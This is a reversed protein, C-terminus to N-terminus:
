QYANMLPIKHTLDLFGHNVSININNGGNKNGSKTTILVVGNSGRAGYIATASPGKLISISKITSPNLAALPSLENGPGTGSGPSIPLGDIVYLPQNNSNLSNNGRIQISIASGPQGSAR